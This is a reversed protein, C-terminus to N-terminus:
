RQKCYWCSVNDSPKTYAQRIHDYETNEDAFDDICGNHAYMIRVATVGKKTLYWRYVPEEYDTEPYLSPFGAKAERYIYRGGFYIGVVAIGRLLTDLIAFLLAM